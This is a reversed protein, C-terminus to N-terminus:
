VHLLTPNASKIIVGERKFVQQFARLNKDEYFKHIIKSYVIWQTKTFMPTAFSEHVTQSM